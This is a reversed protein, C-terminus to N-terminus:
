KVDSVQPRALRAEALRHLWRQVATDAPTVMLIKRCDAEAEAYRGLRAFVKARNRRALIYNPDARVAADLLPLAQRFEGRTRLIAGLNNLAPAYDPKVRVAEEFLPVAKDVRNQRVRVVGLNTLMGYSRPNYRITREAASELSSWHRSQSWAAASMCAILVAAPAATKLLGFRGELRKLESALAFALGALPIYVFRDAMIPRLPIINIVPLLCILYWGIGFGAEPRRERLRWVAWVLFATFLLAALAKPDLWGSSLETWRDLHLGRPFLSLEVGHWVVRISTALREFATPAFAKFGAAGAVGAGTIKLRVGMYALALAWTLGIGLRVKREGLARRSFILEYALVLAPFVIASEKSSFALWECVAAGALFAGKGSARWRLWFFMAWFVFVGALVTNRNSLYAVSEVHLPHAAFLWAALFSGMPPLGAARLLAYLGLAALAHWLVSSVRFVTSSMGGLGHDAMYSVDVMPRYYFTLYGSGEWHRRTFVKVLPSGDKIHKNALINIEDEYVFPARVTSGYILMSWGALFLFVVAPRLKLLFPPISTRSPM